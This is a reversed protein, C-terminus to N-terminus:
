ITYKVSAGAKNTLYFRISKTNLLQKLQNLQTGKLGRICAKANRLANSAIKKKQFSCRQCNVGGPDISALEKKSRKLCPVLAIVRPDALLTRITQDELTILQQM